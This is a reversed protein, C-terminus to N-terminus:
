PRTLPDGSEASLGSRLTTIAALVRPDHSCVIEVGPETNLQALRRHNAAIAGPDIAAQQEFQRFEPWLELPRGTHDTLNASSGDFLADGAHLLLRGDGVDIAVAAHGRTHGPMPILAFRDDLGNVQYAGTFGRWPEGPGEYLSMIPRHAWQVPRYRQKEVEDSTIMAAQQEAATTHVVAGPFDPLGGIHDFDMHTLVIHRVDDATYGLSRIQTIATEAPSCAPNLLLRLPGLRGAPDAVDATGFGTDVLVLGQDTEVVLIHTVLPIGQVNMTGCNLHHVRM